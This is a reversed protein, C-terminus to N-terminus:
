NTSRFRPLEFAREGSLGLKRMDYRHLQDAEHFVVLDIGVGRM